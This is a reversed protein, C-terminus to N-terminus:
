SKRSRPKSDPNSISHREQTRFIITVFNLWLQSKRALSVETNQFFLCCIEGFCEYKNVVTCQTVVWFVKSEWYKNNKMHRNEATYTNLEISNELTRLKGESQSCKKYISRVVVKDITGYLKLLHRAHAQVAIGMFVLDILLFCSRNISMMETLRTM